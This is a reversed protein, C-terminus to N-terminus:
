IKDGLCGIIEDTIEDINKGDTEIIIDAAKKYFEERKLLLNSIKEYKNGDKLLPRSSDNKLRDLITDPSAMLYFSNGLNKILKANDNFCPMGGGTSLVFREKSLSINKLFDSEMNRFAEEGDEEFIDNIRKKENEEICVDSDLYKIKLRKSLEKGVSSKGSGMFGVLIIKDPLM